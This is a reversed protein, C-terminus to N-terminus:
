AHDEQDKIAPLDGPSVPDGEAIFVDFLKMKREEEGPLKMEGRWAIRVPWGIDIGAADILQSVRTGSIMFSGRRPVHVLVVEYQGYRGNRLTKGGFFGILEEGLMKPRWTKPAEVQKWEYRSKLDVIQESMITLERGGLISM